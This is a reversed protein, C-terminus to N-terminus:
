REERDVRAEDGRQEGGGRRMEEAGGREGEGGEREGGPEEEEAREGAGLAGM